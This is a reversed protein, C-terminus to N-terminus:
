TTEEHDEEITIWPGVAEKPVEVLEGLAAKDKLHVDVIRYTDGEIERIELFCNYRMDGANGELLEVLDVLRPDHREVEIADADHFEELYNCRSWNEGYLRKALGLAMKSLMFEGCPSYVVKHTSM